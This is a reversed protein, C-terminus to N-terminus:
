YYEKHRILEFGREINSINKCILAIDIEVSLIRNIVLDFDYYKEIAGMDLDDTIVLGEYSLDKRLLDNIITKSISAPWIADIKPYLVHSVMIGAAKVNIAAKFPILEFSNLTFKNEFLNPLKFHSDVTTRGIGPFHKAISMVNKQLGRIVEAGLEAALEPDNCFMRDEMISNKFNDPAIDLVPAMNMNVGTRKLEQGTIVAFNEADEITKVYSNGPFVTFPEKLRAVKGGEQDIAIFLPPQGAQKAYAQISFCLDELQERSEINISFLIVGGVKVTNILFMLESDLKIGSFGAMIMQGAIQEDKFDSYNM